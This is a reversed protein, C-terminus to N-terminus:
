GLIHFMKVTEFPKYLLEGGWVIRNKSVRELEKWYEAPPPTTDDFNTYKKRVIGITSVGQIAKINIGYPPDVIALDYFQDPTNKMGQMCDMNYVINNM